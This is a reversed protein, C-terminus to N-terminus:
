ITENDPFLIEAEIAIIIMSQLKPFFHSKTNLVM